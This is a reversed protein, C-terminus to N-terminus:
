KINSKDIREFVKEMKVATPSNPSPQVFYESQIELKLNLIREKNDRECDQKQFELKDQFREKLDNEHNQYYFVLVTAVVSGAAVCFGLMKFWNTEWFHQVPQKYNKKAM